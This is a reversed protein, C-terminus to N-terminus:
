QSVHGINVVQSSLKLLGRRSAQAVASRRDSVDLKQFLQKMHWKITETSVSLTRAIEKNSLGHQLLCLVEMEKPTCLQDSVRGVYSATADPKAGTLLYHSMTPSISRIQDAVAPRLRPDIDMLLRFHGNVEAHIALEKLESSVSDPSKLQTEVFLVRAELVDLRSYTQGAEIMSHLLRGAEGWRAAAMAARVRGLAIRAGTWAAYPNNGAFEPNMGLANIEEELKVCESVLGQRFNLRILEGVAAIEIRPLDYTQAHRRLRKLLRSAEAFDGDETALRALTRFGLWLIEPLNVMGDLMEARGALLTRVQALDDQEWRLAALTLALISAPLSTRDHVKEYIPLAFSLHRVGLEIEAENMMSMADLYLSFANILPTNEPAPLLAIKTIYRMAQAPLRAGSLDLWRLINTVALEFGPPTDLDFNIDEIVRLAKLPKDVHYPLIVSAIRSLKPLPGGIELFLRNALVEAEAEHGDFALRMAETLKTAPWRGSTSSQLKSYWFKIDDLRADALFLPIIREIYAFATDPQDAALANRAAEVWNERSAFWESARAHIRKREEPSLRDARTQLWSAALGHFRSFASDAHRVLVPAALDIKRFHEASDSRAFVFDCLSPNFHELVALQDIFEGLEGSLEALAMEVFLKSLRGDSVAITRLQEWCSPGPRVLTAAMDHGAPWGELIEHIRAIAHVGAPGTFRKEFFGISEQLSFALEPQDILALRGLAHRMRSEAPAATRISVAICMNSPLEDAIRFLKNWARPERVRDFGELICVIHQEAKGGQDTITEILRASAERSNNAPARGGEETSFQLIADNLALALQGFSWGDEINIWVVTSRNALLTQRWQALLVSKGYGHPASLIVLPVGAAKALADELRPRSVILQGLRPPKGPNQTREVLM